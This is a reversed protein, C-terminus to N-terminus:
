QDKKFYAAAEFVVPALGASTKNQIHLFWVYIRCQFAVNRENYGAPGGMCKDEVKRGIVLVM